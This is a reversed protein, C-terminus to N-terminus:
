IESVDEEIEEDFIPGDDEPDSESEWEGKENLLMTRRSPCQAAIHGRGHCKHCVIERNRTSSAAGSAVTPAVSNAAFRQQNAPSSATSAAMKSNAISPSSRAAAGQSQGGGLSMSSHQKRWPAAISHSDYSKGRSEQQIKREIRMAQDVLDQLTRYPFMEVFGSIEENLGGLFRAM